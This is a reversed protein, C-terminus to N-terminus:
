SQAPQEDHPAPAGWHGAAEASEAPASWAATQQGLAPSHGQAYQQRARAARATRITRFILVIPLIFAQFFVLYGGGQFLFALYFGYGFFGVGCMANLARAGTTSGKVAPSALVVMVIGAFMLLLVYASFGPAASFDINVVNRETVAPANASAVM